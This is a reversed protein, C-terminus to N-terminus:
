VNNQQYSDHSTILSLNVRIIINIIIYSRYRNFGRPGSGLLMSYLCVIAKKSM